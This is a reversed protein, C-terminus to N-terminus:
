TRCPRSRAQAHSRGRSMQQQQQTEEEEQGAQVFHVATKWWAATHRRRQTAQREGHERDIQRRTRKQGQGTGVISARTKQWTVHFVHCPVNKCMERSLSACGREFFHCGVREVSCLRRTNRLVRVSQWCLVCVRAIALILCVLDMSACPPRPARLCSMSMPLSCLLIFCFFECYPALFIDRLCTSVGDLCCCTSSGAFLFCLHLGPLCASQIARM